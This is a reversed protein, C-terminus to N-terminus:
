RAGDGSAPRRRDDPASNADGDLAIDTPPCPLDIFTSPGCLLIPHRYLLGTPDARTRTDLSCLGVKVLFGVALVGIAFGKEKEWIEGALAKIIDDAGGGHGVETIEGRSLALDILDKQAQSTMLRKGDHPQQWYDQQFLYHALSLIAHDLTYLHAVLLTTKASEQM